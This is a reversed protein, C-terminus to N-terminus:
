IKIPKGHDVMDKKKGNMDFPSALIQIEVVCVHKYTSICVFLDM